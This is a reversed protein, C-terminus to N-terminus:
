LFYNFKKESIASLVEETTAEGKGNECSVELVSSHISALSVTSRKPMMIRLPLSSLTWTRLLSIGTSFRHSLVSKKTNHGLGTAFTSDTQGPVRFRQLILITGRHGESRATWQPAQIADFVLSRSTAFRPGLLASRCEFTIFSFLYAIRSGLESHRELPM